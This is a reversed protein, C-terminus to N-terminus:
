TGDGRGNLPPCQHAKAQKFPGIVYGAIHIQHPREQSSLAGFISWVADTIGEGIRVETIQRKYLHYEDVSQLPRSSATSM